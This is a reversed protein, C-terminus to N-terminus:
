VDWISVMDIRKSPLGQERINSAKKICCDIDSCLLPVFSSRLKSNSKTNQESLFVGKVHM